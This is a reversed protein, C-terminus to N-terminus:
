GTPSGAEAERPSSFSALASAEDDFTEIVRILRTVELVSRLRASPRLMKVKGGRKAATIVSRVLASIGQSDISEVESCELLLKVRGEGILEQLRGNLVITGMGLTIRGKLSLINVEGATRESIELSNM